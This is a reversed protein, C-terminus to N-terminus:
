RTQGDARGSGHTHRRRHSHVLAFRLQEQACLCLRPRLEPTCHAVPGRILDLLTPAMKRTVEESQMKKESRWCGCVIVSVGRPQDVRSSCYCYALVGASLTGYECCASTKVERMKCAIAFAVCVCCCAVVCLSAVLAASVRSRACGCGGGRGRVVKAWWTWLM